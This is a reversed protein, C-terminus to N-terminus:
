AGRTATGTYITHYGLKAHGFSPRTQNQTLV